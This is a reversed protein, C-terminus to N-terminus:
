SGSREGHPFRRNGTLFRKWWPRQAEMVAWRVVERNLVTQGAAMLPQGDVLFPAPKATEPLTQLLTTCKQCELNSRRFREVLVTAQLSELLRRELWSICNHAEIAADSLAQSKFHRALFRGGDSGCILVIWTKGPQRQDRVWLEIDAEGEDILTRGSSNEIIEGNEQATILEAIEVAHHALLQFTGDPSTPSDSLIGTNPPIPVTVVGPFEQLKRRAEKLATVSLDCTVTFNILNRIQAAWLLAQLKPLHTKLRLDLTKRGTLRPLGAAAYRAKEASDEAMEDILADVAASDGTADKFAQVFGHLERHATEQAAQKAAKWREDNRPFAPDDDALLPPLNETKNSIESLAEMERRILDLMEQTSPKGCGTPWALEDTVPM